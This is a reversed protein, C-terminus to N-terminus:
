IVFELLLLSVLAIKIWKVSQHIPIANLPCHVLSELNLQRERISGHLVDRRDTSINSCSAIVGLAASMNHSADQLVIESGQSASEDAVAYADAQEEFKRSLYIYVMIVLLLQILQTTVAGIDIQFLTALHDTWLITCFMGLILFSLHWYRHHAFEHRAVLVLEKQTLNQLLKDTLVITKPQFIIGIAFANMLLMHTNWVLVKAKKVGARRAVQLLLQTLNKDTLERACLICRIVIPSFIILAILAIFMADQSADSGYYRWVVDRVWWLIFLPVFLLLVDCRLRHSVWAIRSKIPSTLWWLLSLSLVVPLLIGFKVLLFNEGLILKVHALWGFMLLAMSWAILIVFTQIEIGYNKRQVKPSLVIAVVPIIVLLIIALVGAGKVITATLYDALLICTILFLSIPRIM